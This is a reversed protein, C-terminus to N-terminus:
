LSKAALVSAGEGSLYDMIEETIREAARGDWLAPVRGKKSGNVLADEAAAVLAEPSSGVLTNTGQDVTAPRETNERVTLCPVGLATTEEQVGGSDTIALRAERMLGIARLYSLPPVVIVRAARLLPDLGGSAIMASTRPHMPFVLPIHRAIRALATLIQELKAPDDVNSPRHLTVFAFGHELADAALEPTTEIESLTVAAPVARSLCAYLTDIMVNGVFTIRRPEIGEKVLNDIASRETTFLLDSLRDTVLRNIEEPMSRDYSRLGAEVHALPILLKSAVLAAALTSNVDGVVLLLDPRNALLVPELSLMIRATQETGTGSGVELNIDPDPIGLEEFFVANMAVDYHQGTHILRASLDDRACFARMIPAIKVFNPRAGVICDIRWRKSSDM